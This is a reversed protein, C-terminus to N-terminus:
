SAKRKQLAEYSEYYRERYELAKKEAEIEYKTGVFTLHNRSAKEALDKEIRVLQELQENTFEEFQTM